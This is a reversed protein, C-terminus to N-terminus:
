SLTKYFDYGNLKKFIELLFRSNRTTPAPKFGTGILAVDHM